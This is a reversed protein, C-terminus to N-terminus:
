DVGVQVPKDPGDVEIGCERAVERLEIDRELRQDFHAPTTDLSTSLTPGITRHDTSAVRKVLPDKLIGVLRGPLDLLCKREGSYGPHPCAKAGFHTLWCRVDLRM